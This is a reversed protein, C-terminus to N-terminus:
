MMRHNPSKKLLNLVRQIISLRLNLHQLSYWKIDLRKRQRRLAKLLKIERTSRRNLKFRDQFQTM